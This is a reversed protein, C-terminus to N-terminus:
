RSDADKQEEGESNQDSLSNSRDNMSRLVEDQFAKQEEPTGNKFISWAGPSTTKSFEEEAERIAEQVAEDGLVTAIRCIRRRAFARRWTERSGTQGYFFFFYDSDILIKEWYKILQVLEHRTPAFHLVEESDPGHVESVYGIREYQNGFCELGDSDPCPRFSRTTNVDKNKPKTM